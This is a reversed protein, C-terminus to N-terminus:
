GLVDAKNDLLAGGAQCADCICYKEGGAKAKVAAENMSRAQEEGFLKKGDDSSTLAILGDINNVDLELQNIMARAADAEKDTGLADLYAQAAAKSEQCCSPAAILKNVNEIIENKNM